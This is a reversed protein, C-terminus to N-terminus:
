MISILQKAWRQISGLIAIEVGDGELVKLIFYHQTTTQWSLWTPSLAWQDVVQWVKYPGLHVAWDGPDQRWASRTVVWSWRTAENLPPDKEEASTCDAFEVAGVALATLSSNFM